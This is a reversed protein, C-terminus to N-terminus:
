NNEIVQTACFVVQEANRPDWYDDAPEGVYRWSCLADRELGHDGARGSRRTFIVAGDRLEVLAGEYISESVFGSALATFWCIDAFEPPPEGPGVANRQCWADAPEHCSFRGEGDDGFEIRHGGTDNVQLESQPQLTMVSQDKM